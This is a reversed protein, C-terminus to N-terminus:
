FHPYPLFLGGWGTGVALREGDPSWTVTALRPRAIDPLDVPVTRVAVALGDTDFDLVQLSDRRLFAVSRGGPSWAPSSAGILDPYSTLLEPDGGTVPIRYLGHGGPRDSQFVIWRGDPSFTPGADDATDRVADTIPEAVGGEIPLLWLQGLMDFVITRGDPSVDFALNTGESVEFDIQQAAQPPGGCCALLVTLVLPLGRM